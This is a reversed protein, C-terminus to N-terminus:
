AVTGGARATAQWRPAGAARRTAAGLAGIACSRPRDGRRAAIFEEPPVLGREPHRWRVLAEVGVIRGSALDVIPQYHLVLEDDRRAGARLDAEADMGRARRRRAHQAEFVVFSASAPARRATCRSTPTACCSRRRERRRARSFAIASASAGVTVEHGELGFPTPWRRSSGSPSASPAEEADPATSSCPSSTAASRPRGHRGAARRELRERSWRRAAPRRGRPGARRQRDQLRRPRPVAGGRRRASRTPRRRARHPRPVAHPQRLGTLQDSYAQRTLQEQLAQRESVDRTTLVVGRIDPDDLLSTM